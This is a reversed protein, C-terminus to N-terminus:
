TTMAIRQNLSMCAIRDPTPIAAKRMGEHIYHIDVNEIAVNGDDDESWKFYIVHKLPGLIECNEPKDYIAAKVVDKVPQHSIRRIGKPSQKVEAPNSKAVKDIVSSTIPFSM